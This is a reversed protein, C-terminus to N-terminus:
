LGAQDDQAADGTASDRDPRNRQRVDYWILAVALGIAPGFAVGLAVNGFAAGFAVGLGAGLALGIGIWRGREANDDTAM